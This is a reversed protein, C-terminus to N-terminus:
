PRWTGAPGSAGPAPRRGSSGGPGSRRTAQRVAPTRAGPKRPRAARPGRPGSDPIACGRLDERVGGAAGGASRRGYGPAGAGADSGPGGAGRYKRARPRRSSASASPMSEQCPEPPHAECLQRVVQLARRCGNTAALNLMSAATRMGPSSRAPM